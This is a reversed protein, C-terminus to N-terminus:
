FGLTEPVLIVTVRSTPDSHIILTKTLMSGARGTSQMRAHERPLSYERVRRLGEGLDRLEILAAQRLAPIRFSAQVIQSRQGVDLFVAQTVDM